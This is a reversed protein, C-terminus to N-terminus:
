QARSAPAARSRSRHESGHRLSNLYRSRAPVKGLPQRRSRSAGSRGRFGCGREGRWAGIRDKCKDGAVAGLFLGVSIRELSPIFKMFDERVFESPRPAHLPTHPRRTPRVIQMRVFLDVITQDGSASMGGLDLSTKMGLEIPVPNFERRFPFFDVQGGGLISGFLKAVRAVFQFPRESIRHSM